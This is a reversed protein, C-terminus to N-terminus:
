PIHFKRRLFLSRTAKPTVTQRVFHEASLESGAVGSRLGFHSAQMIGWLAQVTGAHCGCMLGFEEVSFGLVQLLVAVEEVM